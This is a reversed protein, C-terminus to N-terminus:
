RAPAARSGAPPRVYSTSVWGARVVMSQPGSISAGTPAIPDVFILGAPANFIGGIGDEGSANTRFTPLGDAYYWIVGSSDTALSVGSAPNGDCDFSRVALVGASPDYELGSLQALPEISGRAVVGLPYEIVSEAPLPDKIHFLYPPVAPSDIEIFGTFSEFLALDVWGQADAAIWDTLPRSCTVDSVDCARVRVDPFLAGTNLEVIQLSFIVRAADAPVSAVSATQAEDSLCGWSGTEALSETTVRPESLEDTGPEFSTCAAGM